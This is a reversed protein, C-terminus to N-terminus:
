RVESGRQGCYRLGMILRGDCWWQDQEEGKVVRPARDKFKGEIRSTWLDSPEIVHSDSSIVRYGPM